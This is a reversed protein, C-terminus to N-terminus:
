LPTHFSTPFALCVSHPVASCICSFVPIDLTIYLRFDTARFPTVESKVGGAMAKGRVTGPRYDPAKQIKNKVASYVTGTLQKGTVTRRNKGGNDKETLTLRPQNKYRM